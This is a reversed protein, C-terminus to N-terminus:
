GLGAATGTRASDEGVRVQFPVVNLIFRHSGPRISFRSSARQFEPNGSKEPYLMGEWVTFIDWIVVFYVSHDWFIYWITRFYVLKGYFIGFHWLIYGIDVFYLNAYVRIPIKTHLIGDPL